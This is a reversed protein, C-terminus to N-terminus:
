GASTLLGFIFGALVPILTTKDRGRQVQRDSDAVTPRIAMSDTFEGFDASSCFFDLFFPEIV